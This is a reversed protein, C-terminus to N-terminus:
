HHRVFILFVIILIIFILLVIVMPIYDWYCSFVSNSGHTTNIYNPTNSNDIPLSQNIEPNTEQYYTEQNTEGKNILEMLDKYVMFDQPTNTVLIIKKITKRDNLPSNLWLKISSIANHAARRRDFGSQDASICPFAIESINNQKALELAQLYCRALIKHDDFSESTAKPGITHIVYTAPLNYGSTIQATGPSLNSFNKSEEAFQPGAATYLNINTGTNVICDVKLKTIDGHYHIIDCKYSM